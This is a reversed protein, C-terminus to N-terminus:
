EAISFRTKYMKPAALTPASHPQLSCYLFRRRPVAFVDHDKLHVSRAEGDGSGRHVLDTVLFAKLGIWGRTSGRSDPVCHEPFILRADPLITRSRRRRWAWGVRAPIVFALSIIHHGDALM